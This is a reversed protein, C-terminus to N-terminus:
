YAMFAYSQWAKAPNGCSTFSVGGDYQMVGAEKDYSTGYLNGNFTTTHVIRYDDYTSCYTWKEGGEYRYLGRGTKYIPTAYLKGDFVVLGAIADADGTKPNSLRGCDVWKKGGEYRYIKGGPVTNESPKLGSGTGSYRSVGAYLKGDYV